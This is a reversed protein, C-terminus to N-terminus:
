GIIRLKEKSGGSCYKTSSESPASTHILPHLRWEAGREKSGGWNLNSHGGKEGPLAMSAEKLDSTEVTIVLLGMPYSYLKITLFPPKEYQCIQTVNGIRRLTFFPSKLGLDGYAEEPQGCHNETTTLPSKV